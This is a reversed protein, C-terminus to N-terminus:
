APKDDSPEIENSERQVRSFIRSLLSWCIYLIVLSPLTCWLVSELDSGIIGIFTGIMSLTFGIGLVFVVIVLVVGVVFLSITRSPSLNHIIAVPFYLYFAILLSSVLFFLTRFDWGFLTFKEESVLTEISVTKCENGPINCEDEEVYQPLREMGPNILVERYEIKTQRPAYLLFSTSVVSILYVSFIFLVHVIALVYLTGTVTQTATGKGGFLKAAGYVGLGYIVWLIVQSIVISSITQFSYDVPAGELSLSKALAVGILLSLSAFMIPREDWSWKISKYMENKSGGVLHTFTKKPSAVIGIFIQIYNPLINGFAIIIEKFHLNFIVGSQKYLDGEVYDGGSTNINKDHGVIDGRSVTVDGESQISVGGKQHSSNENSQDTNSPRDEKNTM